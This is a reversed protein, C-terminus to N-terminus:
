FNANLGFSFRQPRPFNRDRSEVFDEIKWAASRYQNPGSRDVIWGLNEGTIYFRLNTFVNSLGSNAPFTYGLTAQRFSLYNGNRVHYDLSSGFPRRSGTTAPIYSDMNTFSWADLSAVGGNSGSALAALELGAGSVSTRRGLNGFAFLGFDWNKYNIQFNLGFELDPVHNPPGYEQDLGSIVGDGNLDEFRLAGVRAGTQDAHAEVEAQSQFIGSTRYMFLANPAHGIINQEQNGPYSPYLDTPLFTIKADYHGLNTGVSWTLDRGAPSAYNLSLEWGKTEMDAGNVFRTDGDGFAAVTRRVILIDETQKNFVEVTGTIRDDLLGFDLGFNLETTSEWKLDDNGTQQAKFGSPLIGVDQNNIDYATAANTCRIYCATDDWPLVNSTPAYVAQFLSFRATNLIDQNGTKGWAARVKLNSIVNNGRLFPEESLRWGVSFAPFVAFRNSLGFRSSGDRRVTASFLYKDQFAYNVKGFYSFLSFGTTSGGSNREGSAADLQFYANTELAFEKARAIFLTVNNEVAETGALVTFVHDGISKNYTLTNNFVWNALHSQRHDLEAIPNNLFGRNYTRFIDRSFINDYDVGFNTRFRLGEIIEAELYVNGFVKLNNIIDDRNDHALAVPNDTDEFGSGPPAAFRGDETLNPVIPKLSYANGVTTGVGRDGWERAGKVVSLNEGVTIRGDLFNYNSNMRIGIREYGAEIVVSKQNFYNAGFHIGGREGGQAFSIDYNQTIGTQSILDWWNTGVTIDGGHVSAPHGAPRIQDEEDLWEPYIIRDLVPVGNGTIGAGLSPDFHWDYTWIGLADPDAGDNVAGLWELRARQDSTMLKDFSTWNEVTTRVNVSITPERNGPQKTTIIVVGNSARSGYISASSADKLIQISEIDNPNLWSLGWNQNSGTNLDDTQFPQIPVGDVIYLPDNNGLTSIGRVRVKAGQGPSGGTAVNVGAMRGQMSQLVNPNSAGEIDDLNVVGVAGLLDRKREVSYGTVVLEDLLQGTATVSVDIANRGETIIEQTDYGIFSVVIVADDPVNELTYSGDIATITGINTGKVLVNAGILPQGDAETIVGSVTKQAFNLFPTLFFLLFLPLLHKLQLGRMSKSQLLFKMVDKSKLKM